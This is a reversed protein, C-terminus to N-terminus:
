NLGVVGAQKIAEELNRTCNHPNKFCTVCFTKNCNPYAVDKM